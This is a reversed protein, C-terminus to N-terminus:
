LENIIANYVNECYCTGKISKDEFVNNISEVADSSPNLIYEALQKPTKCNSKKSLEFFEDYLPESKSIFDEHDPMYFAVPRELLSFDVVTSSYDTIMMDGVAMLAQNDNVAGYDLIMFNDRNKINIHPTLPHLKAVFISNTKYLADNLEESNYLEKVIDSMRDKGLSPMRYTPMYLIINKTFDMDLKSLVDQKKLGKKFVDNRPQGTVKIIDKKPDLGFCDAYEVTCFESTSMTIDRYTWTFLSDLSKKMFKMVGKYTGNYIKKFGAGHWLSVIKAGGVRPYVGFDILGHSYIAVGAHKAFDKGEKSDFVYSKFGYSRVRRCLDDNKCLWACKIEPHNENVWEFFYRANDDFQLGERGGFVWQKKNRKQVMRDWRFIFINSWLARKRENKWDIKKMGIDSKKNNQNSNLSCKLFLVNNNKENKRGYDRTCEM